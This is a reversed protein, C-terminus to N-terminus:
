QSTLELFNGGPDRAFLAAGHREFPAGTGPSNPLCRLRIDRLRQELEDLRPAHLAIRPTGAFQDPPPEQRHEAALYVGLVTERSFTVFIHANPRAVQRDPNITASYLKDWRRTGPACRDKGEGWARANAYDDMRWGVRTEVVGGLVHTYYIESWELDHTEVAVHDIGAPFGAVLQLRNGDPDSLYRNQDREAPRDEHYDHVKIGASALRGATSEVDPLRLAYHTGSDPLVRPESRQCLVLSDSGVRLRPGETADGDPALGLLESYFRAARDADSVELVLGAYGSILGAAARPPPTRVDVLVPV